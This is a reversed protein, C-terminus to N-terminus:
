GSPFLGIAKEFNIRNNDVGFLLIKGYTLLAFTKGDPSIDASTVQTNIHISDVPALIHDGSEAPLQYL